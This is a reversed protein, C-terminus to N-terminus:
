FTRAELRVWSIGNWDADCTRGEQSLSYKRSLSWGQSLSWKQSFSWKQFLSRGEGPGCRRPVEDVELRM